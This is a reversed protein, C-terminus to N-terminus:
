PRTKESKQDLMESWLSILREAICEHTYHQRVRTIGYQGVEERWAPERIMRELIAALGEADGEQFVLDPRGIVYPIHGCTSGIAPIGMAMAEILVNGFQEKWKPITRSPLVLVDFKSMQEPVEKHPIAARWTVLDTVGQKEAERRMVEEDPGTGCVIIQYRHGQERLRRAAALLVDLGKEYV